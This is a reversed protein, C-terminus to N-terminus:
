PPPPPLQPPAGSGWASAPPPRGASLGCDGGLLHLPGRAAGGLGRLFAAGDWGSFAGAPPGPFFSAGSRLRSLFRGLRAAAPLARRASLCVALRVHPAQSFREVECDSGRGAARPPRGLGFPAPLAPHAAM